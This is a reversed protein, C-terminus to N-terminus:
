KLPYINFEDYKNLEELTIEKTYFDYARSDCNALRYKEAEKKSNFLIVMGYGKFDGNDEYLEYRYYEEDVDVFAIVWKKSNM